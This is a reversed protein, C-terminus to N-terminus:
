PRPGYLYLAAAALLVILVRRILLEKRSREAEAREAAALEEALGPTSRLQLLAGWRGDRADRPLGGAAELDAALTRAARREEEFDLREAPTGQATLLEDSARLLMLDFAEPSIGYFAACEDRSRGEVLRLVLTRASRPPMRELVARLEQPSM